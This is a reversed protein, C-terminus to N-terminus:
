KAFLQVSLSNADYVCDPTSVPAPVSWGKLQALLDGHDETLTETYENYLSVTYHGPIKGLYLPNTQDHEHLRYGKDQSTHNPPHLFGM